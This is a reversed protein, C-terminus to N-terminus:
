LFIFILGIGIIVILIAFVYQLYNNQESYGEIEQHFKNYNITNQDLITNESVDIDDKKRNPSLPSGEMPKETTIPVVTEVPKDTIPKNQTIITTTTTNDNNQKTTVVTNSDSLKDIIKIDKPDVPQVTDYVSNITNVNNQKNYYDDLLLKIESRKNDIKYNDEFKSSNLDKLKPEDVSIVPYVFTNHELLM